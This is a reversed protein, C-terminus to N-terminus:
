PPAVPRETSAREETSTSAAAANIAVLKGECKLIHDACADLGLLCVLLVFCRRM